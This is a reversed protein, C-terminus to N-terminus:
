AGTLYSYLSVGIIGIIFLYPLSKGIWSFIAALQRQWMKSVSPSKFVMSALKVEYIRTKIDESAMSAGYPALVDQFIIMVPPLTRKSHQWVSDNTMPHIGDPMEMNRAIAKTNEVRCVGAVTPFILKM